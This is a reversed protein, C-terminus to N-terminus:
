LELWNDVALYQEEWCFSVLPMMVTAVIGTRDAVYRIQADYKNLLFPDGKIFEM